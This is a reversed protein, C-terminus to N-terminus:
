PHVAKAGSRKLISSIEKSLSKTTEGELILFCIKKNGFQLSSGSIPQTHIQANSDENHLDIYFWVGDPDPNPVGSTWGGIHEPKHTHYSYDIRLRQVDTHKDVTFERLQPYTEKLKLIEESVKKIFEHYEQANALSAEKSVFILVFLYIM